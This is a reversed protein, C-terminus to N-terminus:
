MSDAKREQKNCSKTNTKIRPMKSRKEYFHDIEAVMIDLHADMMTINEINDSTLQNQDAFEHRERLVHNILDYITKWSLQVDTM